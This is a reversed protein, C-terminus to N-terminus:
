AEGLIARALATAYEISVEIVVHNHDPILFGGPGIIEANDAADELMDAVLTTVGPHWLAIHDANGEGIVSAGVAQPVRDGLLPHVVDGYVVTRWKGVEYRWPGPTAAQATDRIKTAARRLLDASTETV